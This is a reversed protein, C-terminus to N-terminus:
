CLLTLIFVKHQKQDGLYETVYKILFSMTEKFINKFFRAFIQMLSIIKPAWLIGGAPHLADEM